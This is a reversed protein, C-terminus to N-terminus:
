MSFLQFVTSLQQINQSKLTSLSHKFNKQMQTVNADATAVDWEVIPENSANM